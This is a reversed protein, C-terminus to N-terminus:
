DVPTFVSGVDSTYMYSMYCICLVYVNYEIFIYIDGIYITFSCYMFRARYWWGSVRTDTEFTIAPMCENVSYM